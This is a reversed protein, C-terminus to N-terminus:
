NVIEGKKLPKKLMMKMMQNLEAKITLKIKTDYEKIQKLQVYFNFSFPANGEPSLKVYNYPTKDVINITIRGVQKVTFSCSNNTSQWDEVKDPPILDDFNTFDTFFNFISVEDANITGIKSEITTM